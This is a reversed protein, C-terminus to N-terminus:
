RAETADKERPLRDRDAGERWAEYPAGFRASLDREEFRMGILLYLTMSAALLAHGLTMYPTMWVGLLVGAYMPHRMLGYLWHTKMRLPPAPRGRYWAWAQRIGLLEFIDFALAAALLVAWGLAFLGWLIAAGPAPVHWVVLPIPQWFALLMFGALAAAMVYTSRELRKPVTRMMWDKFFPRAMLSHQLGFVAVLGIDIIAAAFPELVGGVDVTPEIWVKSPKPLNGLFIVFLIFFVFTSIFAAAAYVLGAVRLVSPKLAQRQM